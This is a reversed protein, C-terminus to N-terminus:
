FIERKDSFTAADLSLRSTSNGFILKKFSSVFADYVQYFHYMAKQKWLALYWTHVLYLKFNVQKALHLGEFVHCYAISFILYASMFLKKNKRFSSLQFSIEFSIIKSWDFIVKEEIYFYLIYLALRPVTATSEQGLVRALLWVM